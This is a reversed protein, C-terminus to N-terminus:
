RSSSYSTRCPKEPPPPPGISKTLCSNPRKPLAWLLYIGISIRSKITFNIKSDVLNLLIIMCINHLQTPALIFKSYLFLIKVRWRVLRNLFSYVTGCSYCHYNFLGSLFSRFIVKLSSLRGKERIKIYIFICLWFM